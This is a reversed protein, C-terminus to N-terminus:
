LRGDIIPKQIMVEGDQTGDLRAWLKIIARADGNCVLRIAADRCYM